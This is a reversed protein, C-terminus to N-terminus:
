SFICFYKIFILYNKVYFYFNEILVQKLPLLSRTQLQLSRFDPLLLLNDNQEPIRGEQEFLSLNLIKYNDLTKEKLKSM